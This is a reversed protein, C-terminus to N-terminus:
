RNLAPAHKREARKLTSNYIFGHMKLSVANDVAPDFNFTIGYVGQTDRFYGDRYEHLTIPTGDREYLVLNGRTSDCVIKLPPYSEDNPWTYEGALKQYEAIKGLHNLFAYGMWVAIFASWGFFSSFGTGVSKKIEAGMFTNHNVNLTSTIEKAPIKNPKHFNHRMSLMRQSLLLTNPQRRILNPTRRTAALILPSMKNLTPM